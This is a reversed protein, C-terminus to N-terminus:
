QLPVVKFGAAWLEALIWDSWSEAEAQRTDNPLALAIDILAERAGNGPNPAPRHKSLDVVNESM